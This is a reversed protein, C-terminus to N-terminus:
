FRGRRKIIYNESLTIKGNLYDEMRDYVNPLSLKYGTPRMNIGHKFDSYYGDPWMVPKMDDLYTHELKDVSPDDKDFIHGDEFDDISKLGAVAGKNIGAVTMYLKGDWQEIYKKAGLTKFAEFKDGKKVGKPKDPELHGLPHIIGEKDKPRTKEFDIGRTKCMDKLMDDSQKNFWAFNHKNKYFLSDTDCYICDADISLIADFLRRRCIATIWCGAAYSLFYKNNYWLRLKELGEDVISPTLQGIDWLEPADQDFLVDANFVATVAMGYCSNIWVKSTSYQTEFGELNKYSTKMGYLDLIFNIFMAPLYKKKAVYVGECELNSWQYIRCITIFDQETCTYWLERAALVRGNDYIYGSGRTKAASIYTNWTTAQIDKFHLKLIFAYDEFLDPDPLRTGIYAWKTYPVKGCCMTTPYYSAVDLHYLECGKVVKGVYKRNGHTYGGAFITRFRQYEEADRPILRKIERMYQADNTLLKKCSRRVKGTNTLPLDWVDKYTKLHELIGHYVVLCDFEAYDLEFDFVPTLPTRMLNYDLTGTLKKFGIEKGWQDLSLGTLIYSCRFEVNPFEEPTFKMPKHPARAFVDSFHLINLLFNFEYAANHIFVLIDIDAPIDNLVLLFKELERGYYVVDNVGFQWIWPLAYKDKENWYDSPFGPVYATLKGDVDWASTVEIDFTFIDLCRKIKKGHKTATKCNFNFNKLQGNYRIM